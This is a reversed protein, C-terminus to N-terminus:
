YRFQLNWGGFIVAPSIWHQRENMPVSALAEDKGSSKRLSVDEM